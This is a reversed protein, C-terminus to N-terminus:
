SDRSILLAAMQDKKNLIDCALQMEDPTCGLLLKIEADRKVHDVTCLVGVLQRSALSGIWVDIGGGDMATTDDLYAYDLPYIFTPYRPHVTGKPRDIVIRSLAILDDFHQWFRQESLATREALM